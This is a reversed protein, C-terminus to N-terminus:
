RGRRQQEIARRAARTIMMSAVITAGVGVALGTVTMAGGKFMDELLAM